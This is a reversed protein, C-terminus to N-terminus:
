IWVHFLIAVCDWWQKWLNVKLQTDTDTLEHHLCVSPTIKANCTPHLIFSHCFPSM